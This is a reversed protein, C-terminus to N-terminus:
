IRKMGRRHNPAASGVSRTVYRYLGSVVSVFIFLKESGLSVLFSILIESVNNAIHIM